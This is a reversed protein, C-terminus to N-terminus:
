CKLPVGEALELLLGVDLSCGRGRVTRIITPPAGISRLAGRIRCIFVQAVDHADGQGDYGAREALVDKSVLKGRAQAITSFLLFQACTLKIKRGDWHAEGRPDVRLPGFEVPQEAELNAGCAHCFTPRTM